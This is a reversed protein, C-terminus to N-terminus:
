PRKRNKKEQGWCNLSFLDKEGQVVAASKIEPILLEEKGQNLIMSDGKKVKKKDLFYLLGSLDTSVLM